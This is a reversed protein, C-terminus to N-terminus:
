IDPSAEDVISSKVLIHRLRDRRAADYYVEMNNLRRQEVRLAIIPGTTLLKSKNLQLLRAALETGTIARRIIIIQIKAGSFGNLCLKNM